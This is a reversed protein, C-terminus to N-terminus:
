RENSSLRTGCYPCFLVKGAVSNSLDKQYLECSGNNCYKTRLRGDEKRLEKM